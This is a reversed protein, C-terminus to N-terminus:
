GVDPLANAVGQLHSATNKNTQKNRKTKNPTKKHPPRAKNRQIQTQEDSFLFCCGLNM